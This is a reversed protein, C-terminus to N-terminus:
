PAICFKSTLLLKKYEQTRGEVFVVDAPTSNGNAIHM